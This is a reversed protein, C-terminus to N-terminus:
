RGARPGPWGRPRSPANAPTSAATARARTPCSSASRSPRCVSPRSWSAGQRRVTAAHGDLRDAQRRGVRGRGRAARAARARHVPHPLHHRVNTRCRHEGGDRRGRSAASAWWARRERGGAHAELARLRRRRRSNPAARWEARVAAAARAAARETPAVVGLLRRRARRDRGAHSRARSDDVAVLTAGMASPRVIRGHLMGPRVIDSPYRHRGTVIDRGNVKERAPGACTGSAPSEVGPDCARHGHPPHGEHARRLHRIPWRHRRDTRGQRRADDSRQELADAALDLLLERAAAAAEVAAAGDAAHHAIRVHGHRVARPRHRGHGDLRRRAARPARRGGGPGAVHPHEPRVRGQRHLRHGPGTRGRAALRRDRCTSRPTRPRRSGIGAGAGAARHRSHRPRRHVLGPLRPPGGRLRLPAKTCSTANSSSWPEPSPVREM